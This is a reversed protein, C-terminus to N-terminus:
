NGKNLHEEKFIQREYFFYVQDSLALSPHTVLPKATHILEGSGISRTPFVGRGASDTLSVKIPSGSRAGVAETSMSSTCFLAETCTQQLNRFTQRIEFLLPDIHSSVRRLMVARGGPFM